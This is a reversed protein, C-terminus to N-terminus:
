EENFDKLNRIFIGRM